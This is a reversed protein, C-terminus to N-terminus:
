PCPEVKALQRMKPTWSLSSIRRHPARLTEGELVRRRKYRCAWPVHFPVGGCGEECLRAQRRSSDSNDNDLIAMYM